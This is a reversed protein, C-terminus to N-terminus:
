SFKRLDITEGNILKNGKDLDFIRQAVYKPTYLENNNKLDIFRQVNKFNDISTKRIQTQMETDVVGPRIGFVKVGNTLENQEKAISATMMDLAAKSSCYVSWGHYPLVAAGSSINIIQKNGYSNGLAKIFISSFALPITANILMSNQIDDHAINEVTNIEGLRGANNFLTISSFNQQSIKKILDHFTFIALNFDLLNIVIENLGSNGTTTRSLCYVTFNESLYKQALANGIGKSGGTIIVANSM